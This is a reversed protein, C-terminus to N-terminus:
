RVTWRFWRVGITGCVAIYIASAILGYWQDTGWPTSGTAAAFMNTLAGVPTWGAVARLTGGLVGTSGVLGLIILVAFLVRGAASVEGSTTALGVVAQGIALCVAAGLVTVGVVALWRGPSMTLHYKIGGVIMVVVSVALSTALQVVLRSVPITWAPAPTVRMRQFVGTERDRAMMIPYGILGAAMLGYTISLGVLFGGGGLAAGRGRGSGTIFLIAIPLVLTILLTRGSRMLATADARLLSGLALGLPPKVAQAGMPRTTESM